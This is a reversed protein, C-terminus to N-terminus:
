HGKFSKLSKADRWAMRDFMKQGDQGPQREIMEIKRTSDFHVHTPPCKRLALKFGLLIKNEIVFVM